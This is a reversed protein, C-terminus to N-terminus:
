TSRIQKSSFYKLRALLGCLNTGRREREM